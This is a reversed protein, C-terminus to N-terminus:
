DRVVSRAADLARRSREPLRGRLRWGAGSFGLNGITAFDNEDERLALLLHAVRDGAPLGDADGVRVCFCDVRRGGSRVLMAGQEGVLWAGLRGRQLALGTEAVLDREAHGLLDGLLGLAIREPGAEAGPRRAASRKSGIAVVSEAGRRAQLWPVAWAHVFCIAAAPFTLPEIWLLLAGPLMFATVVWFTWATWRRGDRRLTRESASERWWLAGAEALRREGVTRPAPEPPRQVTM